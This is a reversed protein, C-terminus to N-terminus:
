YGYRFHYIDYNNGGSANTVMPLSLATTIKTHDLAAILLDHLTTVMHLPKKTGHTSYTMSVLTSSTKRDWEGGWGGANDTSFFGQSYVPNTSVTPPVTLAM